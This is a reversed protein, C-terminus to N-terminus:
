LKQAQQSVVLVAPKEYHVGLAKGGEMSICAEFRVSKQGYSGLDEFVIDEFGTKLTTYYILLCESLHIYQWQLM